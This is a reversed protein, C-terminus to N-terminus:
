CPRMRRKKASGNPPSEVCMCVVARPPERGVAFAPDLVLEPGSLPPCRGSEVFAPRRHANIVFLPPERILASRRVARPRIGGPQLYRNAVVTSLPRSRPCCNRTSSRPIGRLPPSWLPWQCTASLPRAPVFEHGLYRRLDLSLPCRIVVSFPFRYLDSLPPHPIV